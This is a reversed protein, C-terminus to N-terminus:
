SGIWYSLVILATVLGLWGILLVRWLLPAHRLEMFDDIVLVGKIFAMALMTLMALRGGAGGEGLGWTTLTAFLMILWIRNLTLTAQRM